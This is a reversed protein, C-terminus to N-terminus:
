FSGERSTLDVAMLVGQEGSGLALLGPVIPQIATISTRALSGRAPRWQRGGDKTWYLGQDTGLFIIKGGRDKMLHVTQIKLGPALTETLIDWKRLKGPTDKSRYLAQATWVYLFNEQIELGSVQDPFPLVKIPMWSTRKSGPHRYVRNATAVLLSSNKGVAIARIPVHPDQGKELIVRSWASDEKGPLLRQYLGQPTGAYLTRNPAIQMATIKQEGLGEAFRSWRKVKEGARYIGHNTGAFFTQNPGQILFHVDGNGLGERLPEWLNGTDRSRYVGSNQTGSFLHGKADVMLTRIMPYTIGRELIQWSSSHRTKKLIGVATGVYLDGTSSIAMSQVSVDPVAESVTTWRESDSKLTFVGQGTGTFLQGGQAIVLGRISDNSLGDSLSYWTKGRDPTKFIGGDFTGAYLIGDKSLTLTRIFNEKFGMYNSLDTSINQWTQGQNHSILIGKGATGILVAGSPTVVISRVLTIKLGQNAPAWRHGRDRSVFVGAGTGAYIREGDAALSAVQPNSLGERSSTWTKGGDESRFLGKRVTGAFLTGEPTALLSIVFRDGLGSKAPVWREGGDTSKYIGDGFFGAYLTDDPTITLAQVSGGVFPGQTPYLTVQGPEPARFNEQEIIYQFEQAIEYQQPTCGQPPTLITVSGLFLVLSFCNWRKVM